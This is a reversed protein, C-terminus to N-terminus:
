SRRAYPARWTPAQEGRETVWYETGRAILGAAVEYVGVCVFAHPPHEVHVVAMTCADDVLVREIRLHWGEPYERNVAVYSERGEIREGTHPWEVVVDAALCRAVGIWDRAEMCAWLDPVVDAAM